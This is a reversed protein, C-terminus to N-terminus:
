IFKFRRDKYAVQGTRMEQERRERDSKIWWCYAFMPVAIALFTTFSKGTPKFHDYHNVRMAQFRQM